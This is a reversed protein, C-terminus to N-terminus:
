APVPSYVGLLCNEPYRANARALLRRSALEARNLMGFRQFTRCDDLYAFYRERFGHRAFVGSLVGRTNMKFQTPFTDKAETRWLLKKVPHHLGFPTLATILPIPSFKNVTYVVVLSDPRAVRKIEAVLSEPDEVHEAVMRLTVLDFQRDGQVDQVFGLIKEHVFANELLTRDPDV